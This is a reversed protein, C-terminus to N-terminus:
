IEKTGQVFAGVREYLGKNKNLPYELRAFSKMPIGQKGLAKKQSPYDWSAAEEYQNTAFVVLEARTKAVERELAAVRQSVFAKKSSFERLMYRDVVARIMGYDLNYNRNYSRDGWDHDESVIVGGTSEILSYLETSEQNSGTFFIRPGSLIPWNEADKLVREVLRTHGTKEMFFGAGIIVLAESGNMRVTKGHRLAAIRRLADRNQNCIIAAAQVKEETLIEGSWEELKEKFLKLTYENRAQHLRNRTFLWDIFEVIPVKKEPEVRRIERLYLYIRILTDTSNSIILYDLLDDYTGDVIKEFQARVLPDFAYELYHDTETLQKNLDAYIQVPFFGAALILEDPVDCGLKGIIKIGSAKQEELIIERNDYIKKLTQFANSALAEKRISM